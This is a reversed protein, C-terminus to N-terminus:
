KEAPISFSLVCVMETKGGDSRKNEKTVIEAGYSESLIRVIFPDLLGPSGEDASGEPASLAELYEGYRQGAEVKFEIAVESAEKSESFGIEIGSPGSAKHMLRIVHFFLESLLMDVGSEESEQSPVRSRLEVNSFVTSFRQMADRIARIIDASGSAKKGEQINQFVLSTGSILYSGAKVQRMAKDLYSTVEAPVDSQGILELYGQIGQIQNLSDHMLMNIMFHLAEHTRKESDLAQRATEESDKTISFMRANELSPALHNCFLNLLEFEYPTFPVMGKSRALYLLGMPGSRGVLRSMMASAFTAREKESAADSRSMERQYGKGSGFFVSAALCMDKKSIAEPFVEREVGDYAVMRLKDGELMYLAVHDRTVIEQTKEVALPYAKELNMESRVATGTEMLITQININEILATLLRMSEVALAIHDSVSVISDLSKLDFATAQSSTFNLMGIPREGAFLPVVVAKEFGLEEAPLDGLTERVDIPSYIVPKGEKMASAFPGRSLPLMKGENLWKPHRGEVSTIKLGDDTNTTSLLTMMDFNTMRSLGEAAVSYIENLSKGSRIRTALENALYLKEARIELERELDKRRAINFIVFSFGIAAGSQNRRVSTSVSVEVRDDTPTTIQTERDEVKGDRLAKTTIDAVAIRDAFLRGITSGVVQASLYGSLKEAGSSFSVINGSLDTVVLAIESAHIMDIAQQPTIDGDSRQALSSDESIIMGLFDRQYNVVSKITSKSILRRGDKAKWHVFVDSAIGDERVRKSMATMWERRDDPVISVLSAGALEEDKFGLARRAGKSVRLIKMSGDLVIVISESSELISDLHGNDREEDRPM